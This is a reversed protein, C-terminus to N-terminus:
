NVSLKSGRTERSSQTIKRIIIPTRATYDLHMWNEAMEFYLIQNEISTLISNEWQNTTYKIQRKQRLYLQTGSSIFIKIM